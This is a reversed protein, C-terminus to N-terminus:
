YERQTLMSFGIEIRFYYRYVKRYTGNVRVVFSRTQHKIPEPVSSEIGISLCVNTSLCCVGDVKLIQLEFIRSVIIKVIEFEESRALQCIQPLFIVNFSLESKSVTDPLFVYSFINM